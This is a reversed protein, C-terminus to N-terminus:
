LRCGKEEEPEKKASRSKESIRTKGGRKMEIRHASRPWVSNQTSSHLSCSPIFPQRPRFLMVEMHRMQGFGRHWMM